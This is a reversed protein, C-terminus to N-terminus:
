TSGNSCPNLDRPIPRLVTLPLNKAWVPSAKTEAFVNGMCAGRRALEALAGDQHVIEGFDLKRLASLLGNGDCIAVLSQERVNGLRFEDNVLVHCPFVDGNPLINLLRGVGCHAQHEQQPPACPVPRDPKSRAWARRVAKEVATEDAVWEGHGQGRGIPLFPNLNIHIIGERLLRCLLPELDPLGVSTVTVLVRPEFGVDHLIRIAGFASEFNGRGRLADNREDLADLSVRVEDALGVLQCALRLTMLHGNTNLCRLVSHEQDASRLSRMLDLIDSRLLPEGETFVVKEPCLSVVDPWLHAFEETTLENPLPRDASFYCYACRLNCAKTVHIFINRFREGAVHKRDMEM